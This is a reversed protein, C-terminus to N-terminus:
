HAATEDFHAEDTPFLKEPEDVRKVFSVDRAAHRPLITNLIHVHTSIM